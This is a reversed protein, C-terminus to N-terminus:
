RHAFCDSQTSGDLRSVRGREHERCYRRRVSAWGPLLVITDFAREARRLVRRRKRFPAATAAAALTAAGAATLACPGILMRNWLVQGDFSMKWSYASSKALFILSMVPPSRLISTSGAPATTGAKPRSSATELPVSSPPWPTSAYQYPLFLAMARQPEPAAHPMSALM